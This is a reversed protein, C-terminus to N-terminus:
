KLPEVVEDDNGVAEMHVVESMKQIKRIFNEEDKSDVDLRFIRSIPYVNGEDTTDIDGVILTVDLLVKEM